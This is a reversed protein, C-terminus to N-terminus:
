KRRPGTVKQEALLDAALGNLIDEYFREREPTADSDITPEFGLREAVDLFSSRLRRFSHALRGVAGRVDAEGATRFAALEGLAAVFTEADVEIAEFPTRAPEPVGEAVALRLVRQAARMPEAVHEAVYRAYRDPAPELLLVLGLDLAGMMRRWLMVLLADILVL